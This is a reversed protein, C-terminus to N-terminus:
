LGLRHRLSSLWCSFRGATKLDIRSGMQARALLLETLM